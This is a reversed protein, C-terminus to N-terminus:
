PNGASSTVTVDAADFTAIQRATIAVTGFASGGNLTCATVRLVGPVQYAWAAVLSAAADLGPYHALAAREEIEDEIDGDGPYTENDYVLTIAVTIPVEVPRTFEITHSFGADDVVTKSTNGSTAIGAAVSSFIAEAVNQDDDSSPSAPGWAVVEIAHPPVTDVTADTPNNIVYCLTVEDVDALVDARIGNVSASGPAAVEAARRLRLAVDTERATGLTTEDAPNTIATWGSVPSAIATLTAAPVATAGPDEAIMVVGALAGGPATVEELNYFRLTPDGDIHAVLSGAAYVGATLTLTAAVRSESGPRRYTGTLACLRDLADGYATDPDLADYVAGLGEWLEAESRSVHTNIQGIPSSVALNLTPSINALQETEYELKIEEQSKITLGTADLGAM